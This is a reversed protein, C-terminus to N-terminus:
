LNPAPPTVQLMAYLRAVLGILDATYGVVYDQALKRALDTRGARILPAVHPRFDRMTIVMRGQDDTLIGWVLTKANGDDKATIFRSLSSGPAVRGINSYVEDGRIIENLAPFQEPILRLVHQLPTPLNSLLEFVAVSFSEGRLTVAKSAALLYSFARLNGILRARRRAFEDFATRGEPTDPPEIRRYAQYAEWTDDWAWILSESLNRFTLLYIREQPEYPSADIPIGLAPNVRRGRALSSEIAHLLRREMRTRAVGALADIEMQVSSSPRYHASHFIRTTVLLDNVTLHTGTESLLKRLNFIQTIDFITTEASIETIQQH